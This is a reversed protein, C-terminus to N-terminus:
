LTIFRQLRDMADELTAMSTAFSIRICGPTGFASGPVLALGERELLQTSFDLDDKFGRQTIITQVNPFIYFTGDAAIVEVGPMAELRQLVYDHRAHFAQVMHHISDNGGTLAAVAAKQAISCPNSTSQSQITKMANILAAPGGAYGIRWGTMAYAKSVGNLVVTRESLAPCANLINVFPQSWLIHEYMDDTAIILNPHALLVESLATLENITYAMGSPNSPSNLFVLKTKPTIAAQLQQATIKYCANIGTPIIVPQGGALLVMDPYSVWFPAPIIVEDGPNLLAQCLNYCSQKGGVSVLIQKPTYELQNDRKFKAIIAQKLEPIGDVATYKTFGHQIADIAAQKIHAPTDFDPEGVGLNIIDAGQVRLEEAKASVALTPSPKVLDLRHAIALM